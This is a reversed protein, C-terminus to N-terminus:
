ESGSLLVRCGVYGHRTNRVEVYTDGHCPWGRCMEHAVRCVRGSVVLSDQSNTRNPFGSWVITWYASWESDSLPRVDYVVHLIRLSDISILERAFLGTDRFLTLSRHWRDVDTQLARPDLDSGPPVNLALHNPRSMDSQRWLTGLAAAIPTIYATLQRDTCPQPRHMWTLVLLLALIVPGLASAISVRSSLM